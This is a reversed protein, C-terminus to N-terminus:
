KTQKLMTRVTHIFTKHMVLVREGSYIQPLLVQPLLPDLEMVVEYANVEERALEELLVRRGACHELVEMNHACVKLYWQQRRWLEDFDWANLVLDQQSQGLVTTAEFLYSDFEIHVTQKLDDYQPRIDHPSIWVSKQLCGM